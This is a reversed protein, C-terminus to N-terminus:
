LGIVSFNLGILMQRMDPLADSMNTISTEFFPSVVLSTQNSFKVAIPVRAVLNLFPKYAPNGTTGDQDGVQFVEDADLIYTASVGSEFGVNLRGMKRQFGGALSLSIPKISNIRQNSTISTDASSGSRFGANQFVFSYTLSSVLFFNNGLVDRRTLGVSLGSYTSRQNKNIEVIRQQFGLLPMWFVKQSKETKVKPPRAMVVEETRPLRVTDYVIEPVIVRQTDYVTVVRHVVVTDIVVPQSRKAAVSEKPKSDKLVAASIVYVRDVRAVEYRGGLLSSLADSISTNHFSVTRNPENQFISPDYSFQAGYTSELAQLIEPISRDKM